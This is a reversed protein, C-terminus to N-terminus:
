ITGRPKAVFRCCEPCHNNVVRGEYGCPECRAEFETPAKAIHLTGAWRSQPARRHVDFRNSRNM